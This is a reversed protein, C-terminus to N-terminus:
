RKDGNHHPSVEEEDGLIDGSCTEMGEDMAAAADIILGHFVELAKEASPSLTFPTDELFIGGKRRPFLDGGRLQSQNYPAREEPSVREQQLLQSLGWREESKIM